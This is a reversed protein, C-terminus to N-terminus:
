SVQSVRILDGAHRSTGARRLRTLGDPQVLARSRRSCSRRPQSGGSPGVPRATRSRHGNTGGERAAISFMVRASPLHDFGAATVGTVLARHRRDPVRRRARTARPPWAATLESAPGHGGRATRKGRRLVSGAATCCTTPAGLVADEDAVRVNNVSAGGEAITRRRRAVPEGGRRDRLLDAVTAGDAGPRRARGRRARARGGADDADLTPSTARPRVAGPQRGRRRGAAEAGHVLATVEGALARQATARRRASSSARREAGRDRRAAASPSCRAPLRAM